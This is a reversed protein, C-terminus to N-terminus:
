DSPDSVRTAASSSKQGKAPQRLAGASVVVTGNPPLGLPMSRVCGNNDDLVYLREIGAVSVAQLRSPHNFLSVLAPGDRYGPRGCQGAITSVAATASAAADVLFLAALM